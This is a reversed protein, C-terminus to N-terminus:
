RPIRLRNHVDRVGPMDESLDEAVRIAHRDSVSGELTVEADKVEVTIQSADLDGDRTLADHVDERVREDSRQYGKPGRGSHPGRQV